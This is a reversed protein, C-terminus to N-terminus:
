VKGGYMNMSPVYVEYTEVDIDNISVGTNSLIKQTYVKM